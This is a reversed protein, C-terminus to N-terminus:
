KDRGVRENSEPATSGTLIFTDRINSGDPLLQEVLGWRPRRRRWSEGGQGREEMRGRKTGERPEKLCFLM